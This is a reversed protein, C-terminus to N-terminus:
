SQNNRKIETLMLKLTHDISCQTEYIRTLNTLLLTHLNNNEDNRSVIVPENTQYQDTLDIVARESPHIVQTPQEHSTYPRNEEIVLNIPNQFIENNQKRGAGHLISPIEAITVYNQLKDIKINSKEAIPDIKMKKKSQQPGVNSKTERIASSRNSKELRIIINEDM